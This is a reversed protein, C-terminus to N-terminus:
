ASSNTRTRARDPDTNHRIMLSRPVSSQCMVFASGCSSVGRRYSVLSRATRIGLWKMGHHSSYCNRRELLAATNTPECDWVHPIISMAASWHMAQNTHKRRRIHDGPRMRLAASSWDKETTLLAKARRGSSSPVIDIYPQCICAALLVDNLPLQLSVSVACCPLWAALSPSCHWDIRLTCWFHAAGHTSLNPTHSPAPLRLVTSMDAHLRSLFVMAPPSQTSSHRSWHHLCPQRSSSPSHSLEPLLAVASWSDLAFWPPQTHLNCARYAGTEISLLTWSALILASSRAAASFSASTLRTRSTLISSNIM